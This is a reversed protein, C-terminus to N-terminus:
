FKGSIPSIIIKKENIFTNEKTFLYVEAAQGHTIKLFDNSFLNKLKINQM